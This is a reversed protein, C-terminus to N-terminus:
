LLPTYENPHELRHPLRTPTSAEEKMKFLHTKLYTCLISNNTCELHLVMIILRRLFVFMVVVSPLLVLILLLYKELIHYVNTKMNYTMFITTPIVALGYLLGEIINMYSKKYPRFSLYCISMCTLSILNFQMKYDSHPSLYNFVFIVRIIFQSSAIAQYDRTGNTGDKYHGQFADVFSQLFRLDKCCILFFIRRICRIPYFCLLLIPFLIFGTLLITVPIFYPMDKAPPEGPDYYLMSTFNHSSSSFAHVKVTWIIHSGVFLINSFSLLTFTTFANFISAKPDYSRRLKAVCKHFPRWLQVIVRVNRAHLNILVYTLVILVLIYFPPLLELMLVHTNSLSSSVCFPPVLHRFFDLSWIDIVTFVLKYVYPSIYNDIYMRTLPHPNMKYMNTFIQCYLIFATFPPSTARVNFIIVILFFITLPTLLVALYLIWMWLTKKKCRVCNSRRSYLDPGYGKKCKSCLLGERKLQGCMVENLQSCSSIYLTMEKGSEDSIYRDFKFIYPCYGEYRVKTTENYNTCKGIAFSLYVCESKGTGNNDSVENVQLRTTSIAPSFLLLLELVIIIFINDLSQHEM